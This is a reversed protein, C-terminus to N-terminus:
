PSLIKLCVAVPKVVYQEFFLSLMAFGFIAAMPPVPGFPRFAKRNELHKATRLGDLTRTFFMEDPDRWNEADLMRAASRTLCNDLEGGLLGSLFNEAGNHILLRLPPLEPGEKPTDKHLDTWFGGERSRRKGCAAAETAEQVVKFVRHATASALGSDMPM